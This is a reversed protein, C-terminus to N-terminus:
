DPFGIERVGRAEVIPWTARLDDKYPGIREVPIPRFGLKLAPSEPRLRYDGQEPNVFLPDAVISHRDFGESRWAEWQGMMAAASLWADDVWLLGADGACLVRAQMTKVEPEHWREGPAPLKFCLEYQKWEPGVHLSARPVHGQWNKGSARDTQVAIQALTGPKQARMRVRLVYTEGSVAPVRDSLIAITRPQGGNATAEILLAQKGIFRVDPTATVRVGASLPDRLRWHSPMGDPAAEEFDANALLNPGRTGGAKRCGTLLPLGFHFVVNYDFVNQAAFDNRWLGYGFADHIYNYRIVQGRIHWCGGNYYAGCDETELNIEGFDNSLAAQRVTRRM